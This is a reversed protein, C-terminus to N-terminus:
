LPTQFERDCNTSPVSAPRRVTVCKGKTGHYRYWNTKQNWQRPLVLTKYWHYRTSVAETCIIQARTGAFNKCSAARKHLFLFFLFTKLSRPSNLISLPDSLSFASSRSPSDLRLGRLECGLPTREFRDEERRSDLCLARTGDWNQAVSRTHRISVYTIDSCPPPPGTTTQEEHDGREGERRSETESRCQHLPSHAGPLLWQRVTRTSYSGPVSPKHAAACLKKRDEEERPRRAPRVTNRLPSVTLRM